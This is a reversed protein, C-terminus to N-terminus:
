AAASPAELHAGRASPSASGPFSEPGATNTSVVPVTPLSHFIFFLSYLTFLSSHFVHLLLAPHSSPHEGNKNTYKQQESNMVPLARIGLRRFCRREDNISLLFFNLEISNNIRLAEVSCSSLFRMIMKEDPMLPFRGICQNLCRCIVEIKM